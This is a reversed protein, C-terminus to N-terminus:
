DHRPIWFFGKDPCSHAVCASASLTTGVVFVSNPPGGLEKLVTASLSPPLSENTRRGWQIASGLHAREDFSRCLEADMLYGRAAGDAAEAELAVVAIVRLATAFGARM